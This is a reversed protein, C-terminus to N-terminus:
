GDGTRGRWARPRVPGLPLSRGAHGTRVAIEFAAASRRTASSDAAGPGEVAISVVAPAAGSKVSAAVGKVVAPKPAPVALVFSDTVPLKGGPNTLPDGNTATLGNLDYHYTDNATLVTPVIILANINPNFALGENLSVDASDLGGNNLGGKQPVIMVSSSTLSSLAVTESFPISAYGFPSTKAAGFAPAALLHGSKSLAVLPGKGPGTGAAKVKFTRTFAAGLTFKTDPNPFTQADSQTGAVRITYKTGPVLTAEPTLYVTMTTPSYAVAAKVPTNSPGSLLQVTSALQLFDVQRNFAIAITDPQAITANNAINVTGRLTTVSVVKLPATTRATTNLVFTQNEPGLNGKADVLPAGSTSTLAGSILVMYMDTALPARPTLSITSTHDANVHYVLTAPIPQSASGLGSPGNFSGSPGRPILVVAHPNATFGGGTSNDAKLGALPANFKVVIQGNPLSSRTGTGPTISLVRLPTVVNFPQTTGASLGSASATLTFGNGLKNLTLGTFSAVGNVANVTLTGRLTAGGPNKGLALTVAGNFSTAPNGAADKAVISLAFTQLQAISAPPQASVGLQAAPGPNVQIATTTASALGTSTVTLTYGTGLKNLMLGSFTAVGNSANVTLTGGLTAGGTNQAIALTVSGTFSTVVDNAADEASAALGFPAVETISAPPPQTIVLQTAPGPVVNFPTTTASSLGTSSATVTYGTGLASMTLGSFTAVGNVANVTVTGGLTANGQNAALALTVSGAFGTVVNTGADEVTVALGFTGTRSVTGAPQQTVVLQSAAGPVVNLALLRVPTLTNSTAILTYQTGVFNLTLDSFTAIGNVANVTVTGGLTAGTPNNSLALTIPGSYGAVVAGSSDVAEVAVSFKQGAGVQKPAQTVVALKTAPPTVNFANSQIVSGPLSSSTVQLFDGTGGASAVLSTFAVEGRIASTTWSRLVSGDQACLSVTIAGNFSTDVNGFSDKAAVTVGFPTNASITAPPQATVDLEMAPAASMTFPSTTVSGLASSSARLTYGAGSTDLALGTFTAVGNVASVTLTGGLQGSGPNAGIAMTVAGQFTQDVYGAADAAVVIVTFPSGAIGQAPPASTVLLQTATTTVNFPTTIESGLGTSSVQLTYGTGVQNLSIGSFTAVGNQASVSLTGGPRAGGPNNELTIKVVGRFATDINGLGDWAAVTLGFKGNVAVSAPPENLVEFRYDTPPLVDFSGTTRAPLSGSSAALSYGTSAQTMTLDDFVAVGQSVDVTTTGDLSAGDPGQAIALTVAGNYNSVINGGGDAVSVSVSFPTDQIIGSPPQASILLQSASGPTVAISNTTVPTVGTSTAQIAYGTSVKSLTLESFQAVGGTAAVSLPGGLTSQGPNNSLALNVNGNFSTDPNGFQDEATVTAEFPLLAIASTPPQETVVLQTAPAPLVTIVTSPQALLGSGVAGLTFQGVYDFSLGSFTAVGNVAKVTTTGLLPNSGNSPTLTVNGNFLTDVHGAADEEAVSVSFGKGATVRTPPEALFALEVPPVAAVTFTHTTGQTLGNATANITVGSGPKDLVVNTFLAVGNVANVTLTGSLTAGSPNAGLSLTVPGNYLSDINGSADESFFALTFRNGVYVTTPPATSVALQTPPTVSVQFEYAGIDATGGIVRAYGAGRTDSLLPLGTSADIAAANSGKDLAPSGAFLAETQTLGGNAALPALLPNISRGASLSGVQNGNIGNGIGSQTDGNGILNNASKPDVPGVIDRNAPMANGVIVCNNLLFTSPNLPNFPRNTPAASVGAGANGNVTLNTLVFSSSVGNIAGSSNRAITDNSLVVTSNVAQVAYGAQVTNGSITTGSMTLSGYEVLITDGSSNGTSTNGSLTCNVLSVPGSLSNIGAPGTANLGTISSGILTLASHNEIGQGGTITDNVLTASAYPENKLDIANTNFFGPAPMTVTCTNLVLTGFNDIIPSLANSSVTLYSLSANAASSVTLMDDSTPFNNAEGITLSGAGPGAISVDATITPLPTALSITGTVGFVITSGPKANAQTIAYRLDGSTGTGAGNDALSTVTYVTGGAPAVGAEFAGIDVAGNFLRGYGAGRQDNTLPLSTNPDVALAASGAGVAPSSPVLAVTATPGGNNELVVLGANIVTGAKASGVHNGHITNAIGTLRDGNGVLNYTSFADLAGEVDSPGNNSGSGGLNGAILTNSLLADGGGPNALGGGFDTLADNGALTANVLKVTGNNAIGGGDTSATNSWATSNTFFLTGANEIGAGNASSNGSFTSDLVSATAGSANFLGGGTVTASSASVTSYSLSLTGTNAIAGGNTQATNGTVTSRILSLTGSNSIGGGNLTAKSGSIVSNVITLMGATNIGGGANANGGTITLGSISATTGSDVNIVSFKSGAAAKVTLTGPGPGDISMNASVDPLATTVQITGSVSFEITSGPNLDAQTLAYRLDGVFGSGTGTDGLSNV